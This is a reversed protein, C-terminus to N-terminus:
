GHHGEMTRRGGRGGGMGIRGNVPLVRKAPKFDHGTYYEVPLLASQPIREPIGLLVAAEQEYRLHVTSRPSGLGRAPPEVM